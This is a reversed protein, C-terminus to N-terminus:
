LRVAKTLRLFTLQGPADTTSDCKFVACDVSSFSRHSVLAKAALSDHLRM